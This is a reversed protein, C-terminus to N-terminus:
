IPFKRCSVFEPFLDDLAMVVVFLLRVVFRVFLVTTERDDLLLLLLLLALCSM